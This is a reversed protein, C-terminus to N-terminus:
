GGGGGGPVGTAAGRLNCVNYNRFELDSNFCTGRTVRSGERMTTASDSWIRDGSPDYHLETSEVIRNQEPIRLVVNGQATLMESRRDMRGRESVVSARESGSEGYITMDVGELHVVSSDRFFYASDAQIRAQRIGDTTAYTTMEYLVQDAELELLTEDALTTAAPDQCAALPALLLLGAVLSRPPTRTRCDSPTM